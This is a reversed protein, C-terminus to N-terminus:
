RAPPGLFDVGGDGLGKGDVGTAPRVAPPRRPSSRPRIDAATSLAILFALTAAAICLAYRRRPYPARGAGLFVWLISIVGVVLQVPNGATSENTQYISLEFKAPAPPFSLDPANADLGLAGLGMYVFDTIKRNLAYNESALNVALNRAGNVVLPGLGYDTNNTAQGVTGVPSGSDELNRLYFSLNPLLLLLACALLPALARRGTPLIEALFWLGLPLGILYATGKTALALGAAIAMFAADKLSRSRQWVLLREATCLVFFTVVLDNQTSTSELIGIPLTAATLRALATGRRSAGLALAIRGVLIVSGAGALWQVINDLRDGGSLLRLQLILVEAFNPLMLQRTNSTPYFALSRNQIWHEIRALHYTQSDWNNPPSALAIFLTVVAVLALVAGAVWEVSDSASVARRLFHVVSAAYGESGSSIEMAGRSGRRRRASFTRHPLYLALALAVVALGWCALLSEFTLARGLSLAESGVAIAFAWSLAGLVIAEPIDSSRRRFIGITLALAALPLLGALLM